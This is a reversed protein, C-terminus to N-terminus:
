LYIDLLNYVYSVKYLLIYIINFVFFFIRFLEIFNTKRIENVAIDDAEHEDDKRMLILVIWSGFVGNYNLKFRM